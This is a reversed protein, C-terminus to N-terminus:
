DRKKKLKYFCRSHYLHLFFFEKRESCISSSSCLWKAIIFVFAPPKDSLWATPIIFTQLSQHQWVCSRRHQLEGLREKNEMDHNQWWSESGRAQPKLDDGAELSPVAEPFSLRALPEHGLQWSSTPSPLPKFSKLTNRRIQCNNIM